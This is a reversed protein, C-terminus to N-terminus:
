RFGGAPKAAIHRGRQIADGTRVPAPMVEALVGRDVRLIPAPPGAAIQKRNLLYRQSDQWGPVDWPNHEMEFVIGDDPAESRAIAAQCDAQCSRSM